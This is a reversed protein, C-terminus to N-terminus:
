CPSLRSDVIGAWRGCHLAFTRYCFTSGHCDAHRVSGSRRRSCAASDCWRGRRAEAEPMGQRMNEEFALEVHTSIEADLEADRQQKHFFSRVRNSAERIAGM